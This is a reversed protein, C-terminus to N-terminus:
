PTSSITFCISSIRRWNCTFGTGAHALGEIRAHMLRQARHLAVIQGVLMHGLLNAAAVLQALPQQTRRQHAHGVVWVSLFRIFERAFRSHTRICILELVFHAFCIIVFDQANRAVGAVLLQLAGIALLRELVMRVAVGAVVGGFLLELLGALGVLHQAVGVLAGGVVAVAM